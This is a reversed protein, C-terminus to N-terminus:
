VRFTITVAISVPKSPFISRTGVLGHPEFGRVRQKWAAPECPYNEFAFFGYRQFDLAM